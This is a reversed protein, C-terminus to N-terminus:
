RSVRGGAANDTPGGQLLLATDSERHQVRDGPEPATRAAGGQGATGPGRDGEGETGGLKKDGPDAHRGGVDGEGEGGVQASLLYTVRSM